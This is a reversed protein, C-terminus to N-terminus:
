GPGLVVAAVQIEGYGVSNTGTKQCEVGFDYTGPGMPGVVTTLGWNSEDEIYSYTDDLSAASTALRCFGQETGSSESTGSAIILVRTSMPLTRTVYGCDIYTDGSPSCGAHNVTSTGAGGITAAPVTGLSGEDIESGALSNDAVESPGVSNAALDAATLGGGALTDDRVDGTNITNSGIESTLVSGPRLDAATLGGGTMADDRVDISRIGSNQIDVSMVQGDVIDDSFVTNEGDLAYATGGSVVLFLALLALHQERIYNVIRRRM